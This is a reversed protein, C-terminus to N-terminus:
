YNRGRHGEPFFRRYIQKIRHYKKYEPDEDLQKIERPTLDLQYQVRGKDIIISYYSDTLFQYITGNKM